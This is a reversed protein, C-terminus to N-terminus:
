RDALELSPFRASRVRLDRLFVTHSEKDVLTGAEFSAVGMAPKGGSPTLAFAVRGSLEAYRKWEDIQPEYYVLKGRQSEIQRPWGQDEEPAVIRSAPQLGDAPEPAAKETGRDCSCVLLALVFTVRSTRMM